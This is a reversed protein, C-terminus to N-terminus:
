MLLKNGLQGPLAWTCNSGKSGGGGGGSEAWDIVKSQPQRPSGASIFTQRPPWTNSRNCPLSNSLPPCM